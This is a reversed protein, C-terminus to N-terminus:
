EGKMYEIFDKVMEEETDFQYAIVGCEDHGLNNNFWIAAKQIFADTRTYEVGEAFPPESKITTLFFGSEAAVCYIKEPAEKAKM